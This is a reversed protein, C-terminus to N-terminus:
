AQAVISTCCKKKASSVYLANVISGLFILILGVYVLLQSFIVLKGIVCLAAGVIAFYLLLSTKLQRAKYIMAVIATVLLLSLSLRVWFYYPMIELGTIGLIGMYAAFCFPCKPLVGIVIAPILTFRFSVKKELMIYTDWTNYCCKM